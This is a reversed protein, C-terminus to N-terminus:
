ERGRGPAAVQEPHRRTLPLRVPHGDAVGLAVALDVALPEEFLHLEEGGEHGGVLRAPGCVGSRCRLGADRAVGHPTIWATTTPSYAFRRRGPGGASRCSLPVVGATRRANEGASRPLYVMLSAIDIRLRALSGGFAPQGSPPRVSVRDRDDGRDREGSFAMGRGFCKVHPRADFTGLSFRPPCRPCGRAV